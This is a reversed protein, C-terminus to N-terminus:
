RRVETNRKLERANTLDISPLTSISDSYKRGSFRALKM